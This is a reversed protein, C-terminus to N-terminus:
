FLQFFNSTDTVTYTIELYPRKTTDTTYEKSAWRSFKDSYSSANGNLAIGYNDYTEDKWDRYLNTIDITLWEGVSPINVAAGTNNVAGTPKTGYTVTGESWSSEIRQWKTSSLPTGNGDSIVYFKIEALTITSPLTSIDFKILSLYFDGWGGNRLYEKSGYNTSSKSSRLFADDSPSQKTTAM